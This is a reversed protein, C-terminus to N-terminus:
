ASYIDRNIQIKITRHIINSAASTGSSNILHKAVPNGELQREITWDTTERNTVSKIFHQTRSQCQTNKLGRTGMM